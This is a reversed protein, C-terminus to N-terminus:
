NIKATRFFTELLAPNTNAWILETRRASSMSAEDFSKDLFDSDDSM